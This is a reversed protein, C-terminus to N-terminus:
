VGAEKRGIFFRGYRNYYSRMFESLRNMAFHTSKGKRGAANDYILHREM